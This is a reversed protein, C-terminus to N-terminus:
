QKQRQQLFLLVMLSVYQIVIIELYLLVGGVTEGDESGDTYVHQYEAYRSQLVNFNQKLVHPNSIPFAILPHRLDM